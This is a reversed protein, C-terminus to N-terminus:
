TILAKGTFFREGAKGGAKIGRGVVFLEYSIVKRGWGAGKGLEVMTREEMASSKPRKAM